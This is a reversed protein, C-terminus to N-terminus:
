LSYLIIITWENKRVKELDASVILTDPDCNLADAEYEKRAAYYKKRHMVWEDCVKCEETRNKLDEEKHGTEKSHQEFAECSFCEEHGLKAFSINLHSVEQRYLEYSCKVDPYKKKFLEYMLQITIDNPLYLVNPAHERRYHSITPNFSMIHGRIVDRDIKNKNPHRGRQEIKPSIKGEIIHQRVTKLRRDNTPSFGLTTLLFTKCVFIDHGNENQLMYKFSSNKRPTGCKNKTTRRQVECTVTSTMLFNRQNEDSLSWFQENIANRRNENIKEGCKWKCNCLVKVKHAERRCKLKMSKRELLSTDFKRRKRVEGKKTYFQTGEQSTDANDNVQTENAESVSVTNEGENVESVSVTSEGDNTVANTLLHYTNNPNFNSSVVPAGVDLEANQVEPVEKSFASTSDPSDPEDIDDESLVYDPDLDSSNKRIARNTTQKSNIASNKALLQKNLALALMRYGRSEMRFYLTVGDFEIM